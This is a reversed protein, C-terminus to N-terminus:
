DVIDGCTNVNARRDDRAFETEDIDEGSDIIESLEVLDDREEEMDDAEDRILAVNDDL